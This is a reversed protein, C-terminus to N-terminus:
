LIPPARPDSSLPFNSFYFVLPVSPQIEPLPQPQENVLAPASIAASFALACLECGKGEECFSHSCDHGLAVLEGAILSFAVVLFLITKNLHRIQPLNFQM